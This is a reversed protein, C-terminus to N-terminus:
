IENNNKNLNNLGYTIPLEKKMTKNNNEYKDQSDNISNNIISLNTLHKQKDLIPKKSKERLTFINKVNTILYKKIKLEAEKRSNMKSNNMLEYNNKFYMQNSYNHIKGESYKNYIYSLKKFRHPTISSRLDIDKPNFFYKKRRRCGLLGQNQQQYPIYNRYLNDYYNKNQRIRIRRNDHFKRNNLIKIDYERDEKTEGTYITKLNKMEIELRPINVKISKIEHEKIIQTLKMESKSKNKIQFITDQLTQKM